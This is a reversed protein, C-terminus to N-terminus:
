DSSDCKQKKPQAGEEEEEGGSSAAAASSSEAPKRQQKKDQNRQQKTQAPAAVTSTKARMKPGWNPEPNLQFRKLQQRRSEPNAAPHPEFSIHRPQPPQSLIRHGPSAPALNRLPDDKTSQLRAYSRLMDWLFDIPATTKIGHKNAHSFFQFLNAMAFIYLINGM